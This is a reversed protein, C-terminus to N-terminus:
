TLKRRSRALDNLTKLVAGSNRLLVREVDRGDMANINVTTHSAGGGLGGGELASKLPKAINAPLVTEEGHLMTIPTKNWPVDYGQASLFPTLVAMVGSATAVAAGPALFPGAGPIAAVQSATAAGATAAYAKTKSLEAAKTAMTSFMEAIIQGALAALIAQLFTNLIIMALDRFWKGMDVTGQEIAQVLAMFHNAISNFLNEMLPKTRTLNKYELEASRLIYENTKERQERVIRARETETLKVQELQMKLNNMEMQHQKDMIKQIVAASDGGGILNSLNEQAPKASFEYWKDKMKMESELTDRAIKERERKIERDVELVRKRAAEVEKTVAGHFRMEEMYADIAANLRADWSKNAETEETKIDELRVEHAERDRAHELEKRRQEAESVEKPPKQGAIRRHHLLEEDMALRAYALRMEWSKTVDASQQRLQQIYDEHNRKQIQINLRAIEGKIAKELEGGKRALILQDVWLKREEDLTLANGEARMGKITGILERQEKMFKEIGARGLASEALVTRDGEKEWQWFPKDEEGPKKQGPAHEGMLWKDITWKGLEDFLAKSENMLANVRDETPKFMEDFSMALVANAAKMQEPDFALGLGEKLQYGMAWLRVKMIDFTALTEMVSKQATFSMWLFLRIITNIAATIGSAAAPGQNKMWDALSKLTPMLSMAVRVSLAEMVEKTQNVANKYDQLDQLDKSSFSLGLHEVEKVAKAFEERTVKLLGFTNQWARNYIMKASVSRNMGAEMKNMADNVEFFVDLLPRMKNNTDFVDVGLRKFIGSGSAINMVLGRVAILAQETTVSNQQLAMKFASAQRGSVGFALALNRVQDTYDFLEKMFHGALFGGTALGALMTFARHIRHVGAELSHFSSSMANGFRKFHGESREASDKVQKELKKLGEAMKDTGEIWGKTAGEMMVAFEFKLMPEKAM